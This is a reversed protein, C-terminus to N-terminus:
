HYYSKIIVFKCNPCEFEEESTDSYVRDSGIIKLFEECCKKCILNDRTFQKKKQKEEESM